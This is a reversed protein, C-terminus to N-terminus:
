LPGHEFRINQDVFRDYAGKGWNDYLENYPDLVRITYTKPDLGAFGFMIHTCMFPDIDEVDFRGVSSRYVSWSGFYCM